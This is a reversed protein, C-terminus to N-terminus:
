TLMDKKIIGRDYFKKILDIETEVREAVIYQVHPALYFINKILDIEKLCEFPYVYVSEQLKLFGLNELKNRLVDRRDKKDNAIDYIVLRWKKDWSKPKPIVLEQYLYTKLLKKGKQILEIQLEKGDFYKKIFGARELRYMDLRFHERDQDRFKDYMKFPIRYVNAKDFIPIVYRYVDLFYLLIQRAVIKTKRLKLDKFELDDNM